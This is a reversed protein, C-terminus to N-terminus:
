LPFYERKNIGELGLFYLLKLSILAPLQEAAGPQYWSPPYRIATPFCLYTQHIGQALTIAVGITIIM